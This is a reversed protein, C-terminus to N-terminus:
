RIIIVKKTLITNKCSAVFLYLGDNPLKCQYPLSYTDTESIVQFQDILRGRMDYVKLDIEGILNEFNLHMQGHNPNPTVSFTLSNTSLNDEDLGYFSSILWYRREVGQPFCNNFVKANLWVTDDVHNLVYIKCNKGIPNTTSDPEIIWQVEPNEFIWRISDWHCSSNNDWFTFDYSNILFETPIVVWHPAANEPDKPYIETPNPTYDLELNLHTITYCGEENPITDTYQGSEYYTKGHWEYSDCHGNEDIPEEENLDGVELYLKVQRDCGYQNPSIYFDTYNGPQDYYLNFGHETYTDPGTFCVYDSITSDSVPYCTIAVNVISNCDPNPGPQERSLITDHEILVNNFGHDSYHQGACIEDAFNQDQEHRADIYFLSANSSSSGGCPNEGSNVTLTATFFDNTAYTHVVPNDTSTTGDGFDWLLSYDNLSIEAAFSIPDLTCNSITDQPQIVVDDIILTTSLDTAKSGVLYAYGRDSGFGYVHANFGNPCAIHHVNHSIGKRVFSYEENGSVREFQNSPIPTNDFLVNNIDQTAVIINVYQNNISSNHEADGSFTTFTVETMRQEVPSIWLMSPDGNHSFGPDDSSTTNFLYVASPATAEIYCSKDSSSLEFSYSEYAQLTAVETGNKKITNDNASSTIKVFDRHRSSSQTVVFKKGWSRLPMAQEFIHDYGNDVDPITTLTNGNFVAIPKCDRSTVRSGSLDRQNGNITSRVQYSEGKQLTVSFEENAPKGSITKASPTIDVITNDETAVILFASSLYNSINQAFYSDYSTSQEYTQIIYDDALAQIPLVYSADFSNTAINTCYVSVTDTTIIQLGKDNATEYAFTENYGQIEPVDISTINNATVNFNHSWGTQPNSITGSCDHKSSIMLQTLLYHTSANTKFGNGMFSVWFEKGQTSIEQAKCNTAFLTFLVFLLLHLKNRKM